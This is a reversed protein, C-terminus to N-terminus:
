RVAFSLKRLHITLKRAHRSSSSSDEGADKKVATTTEEIAVRNVMKLGNKAQDQTKRTTMAAHNAKHRNPTLAAKDRHHQVAAQMRVLLVQAAQRMEKDAKDGQPPRNQGSSAPRNNSGGQGQGPRSSGANSQGPRSSGANSQGPRNGQGGQGQNPRSSSNNGQSPRNNSSQQAPRSSQQGAPRQESQQQNTQPKTNISNMPGQRDQKLNKNEQIPLVKREQQQPQQSQPRSATPQASSVSVSTTEQARKAAANQKINRFFGEVKNVMENEMVSMHNNVPLDLRKLITIIEKSSMNLSKAYEYVRLKDKNDKSDQKNDM